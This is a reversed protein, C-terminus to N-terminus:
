VQPPAGAVARLFEEQKRLRDAIAARLERIDGHLSENGDHDQVFVDFWDEAFQTALNAVTVHSQEFGEVAKNAARLGQPTTLGRPTIDISGPIVTETHITPEPNGPTYTEVYRREYRGEADKPTQLAPWQISLPEDKLNLGGETQYRTAADPAPLIPRTLAPGTANEHVLPAFPSDYDFVNRPEDECVEWQGVSNGYVDTVKGGDGPHPNNLNAANKSLRIPDIAGAIAKRVNAWNLMADNGLEITLVFNM